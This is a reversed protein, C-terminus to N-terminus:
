RWPQPRRSVTSCNQGGAVGPIAGGGLVRDYVARVATAKAELSFDEARRLAGMALRRRAQENTALDQLRTRLAAIFASPCNIPLCFGAAATVVDPFGCHGPCVVPLGQSMAEVLVTSTLDQLSTIVFVHAQALAAVAVDRPLRGHWLCRDALGLRVALRLWAATCPGEGYVHLCWGGPLGAGALARLLLPLGKRPIHLGSWALQLPEDEGRCRIGGFPAPATVEPIVVSACHYHARLMRAIGSTAAILGPGARMAARRPAHLWRRQWANVLNRGAFRVAGALGLAPLLRWPTDELGGLPGWVFPLPLRWLSGPFRFGVYTLQHTLDYRGGAVLESAIRGAQAQWSRYAWHMVPKFLSEEIRRWGPTPAYHWPRASPYVFVVRRSWHDAPATAVHAEIDPRHFAATIVTVDCFSAIAAVWNWGVAEESGQNPNCAYACILVQPRM